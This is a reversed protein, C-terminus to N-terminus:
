VAFQKLDALGVRLEEAEKLRESLFEVTARVRPAILARHPFQLALSRTGAHHHRWLVIRLRGGLLHEWAHHAGIQAIGIGSVAAAVAAMPDSVVLAAPDPKRQSVGGGQAKFTWPSLPGNLFRVGILRHSALDATRRPIGHVDLYGPAAVLVTLLNCIHRSVLSSDDIQGGRLALDFGDRVVDVRRDDFEVEPVIGPHRQLLGPLLPLLYRHGFASGVSIRVRGAPQARQAAVTDIALDLADIAERARELFAQGEATLQLSRTSRNMLRVGLAGELGAVNKGVAAPSLGLARAAAAFSGRDAAQVFSLMARVRQTADM